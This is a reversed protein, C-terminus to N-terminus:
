LDRWEGTSSIRAIANNTKDIFVIQNDSQQAIKIIDNKSNLLHLINVYINSAIPNSNFDYGGNNFSDVTFYDNINNINNSLQTGQLYLVTNNCAFPKAQPEDITSNLMEIKGGSSNIVIKSKKFYCSNAQIGGNIEIKIDCENYSFYSGDLVANGGVIRTQVAVKNLVFICNGGSFSSMTIRVGEANGVYMTGNAITSSGLDVLDGTRKNHNITCYKRKIATCNEAYSGSLENGCFSAGACQIDTSQGGVIGQENCRIIWLGGNQFCLSKNGQFPTFISQGNTIDPTGLSVGHVGGNVSNQCIIHEGDFCVINGSKFILTDINEFLIGNYGGCKLVTEAKRIKFNPQINDLSLESPFADLWHPNRVIIYDTQADTVAFSGCIFSFDKKELGNVVNYDKEFISIVDGVIINHNSVNIRLLHNYAANQTFAMSTGYYNVSSGIDLTLVIGDISRGLNFSSHTLTHHKREFKIVTGRNCVYPVQKFDLLESSYIETVIGTLDLIQNNNYCYNIANQLETYADFNIQSPSHYSKSM